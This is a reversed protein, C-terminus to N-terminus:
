PFKESELDNNSLEDYCYIAFPKPAELQEEFENHKLSNPVSVLVENYEKLPLNSLLIYNLYEILLM